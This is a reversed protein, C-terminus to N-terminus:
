PVRKNWKHTADNVAYRANSYDGSKGGRAGCNQCEVWVRIDGDGADEIAHWLPEEAEEECGCFPCPLLVLSQEGIEGNTRPESNTEDTM